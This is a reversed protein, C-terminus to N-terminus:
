LLSLINSTDLEVYSTVRHKRDETWDYIRGHICALAHGSTYVLYKGVPLLSTISTVTYSSGNPQTPRVRPAVRGALHTELLRTNFGHRAKRGLSHLLSHAENYSQSLVMATAIVSCDNGEGYRASEERLSKYRLDPSIYTSAQSTSPASKAQLTSM